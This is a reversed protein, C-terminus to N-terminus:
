LLLLRGKNPYAVTNQKERNGTRGRVILPYGSKRVIKIIGKKVTGDSMKIINIGKQSQSIRIGNVTYRAVEVM